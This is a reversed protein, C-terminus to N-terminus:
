KSFIKYRLYCGRKVVKQATTTTQRCGCGANNQPKYDKQYEASGIKNPIGSCNSM